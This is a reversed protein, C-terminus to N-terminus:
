KCEYSVDWPTYLNYTFFSSLGQLFGRKTRVEQWKKGECQKKLDVPDSFEVLGLIGGHHWNGYTAESIRLQDSSHFTLKYCGSLFLLFLVLFARQYIKM